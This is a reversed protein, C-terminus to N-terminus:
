PKLEPPHNQIIRLIDRLLHYDAEMCAQALAVLTRYFDTESSERVRTAWAPVWKM